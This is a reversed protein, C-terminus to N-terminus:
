INLTGRRKKVESRIKNRPSQAHLLASIGMEEVLLSSLPALAFIAAEKWTIIIKAKIEHFSFLILTKVYLEVHRSEKFIIYCYHEILMKKKIAKSKKLCQLLIKTCRTATNCKSSFHWRAISHANFISGETFYKTRSILNGIPKWATTSEFELSWASQQKINSQINDWLLKKISGDYTAEPPTAEFLNTRERRLWTTSLFARCSKHGGGLRQVSLPLTSLTKGALETLM